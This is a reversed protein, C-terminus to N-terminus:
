LRSIRKPLNPHLVSGCNNRKQDQRTQSNHIEHVLDDDELHALLVRSALVFVHSSHHEDLSGDVAGNRIRDCQSHSNQDEEIKSLPKIVETGERM